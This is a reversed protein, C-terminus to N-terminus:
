SLSKTFWSFFHAGDYCFTDFALMSLKNESSYVKIPIREFFTTKAVSGDESISCRTITIYTIGSSVGTVNGASDVTAIDDNASEYVLVQNTDFDLDSEVIISSGILIDTSKRLRDPENLDALVDADFNDIVRLKSIDSHESMIADESEKLKITQNSVSQHFAAIAITIIGLCVMSILMETMTFGKKFFKNKQVKM